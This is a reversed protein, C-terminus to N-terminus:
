KALLFQFSNTSQARLLRRTSVILHFYPCFFLCLTVIPFLFSCFYLYFSSFSYGWCMPKFDLFFLHLYAGLNAMLEWMFILSFCGQNIIKKFQNPIYTCSLAPLVPFAFCSPISPQLFKPLCHSVVWFPALFDTILSRKQTKVAFCVLGYLPVQPEGTPRCNFMYYSYAHPLM